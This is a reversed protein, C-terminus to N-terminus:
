PRRYVQDIWQTVTEFDIHSLSGRFFTKVMKVTSVVNGDEGKHPGNEIRNKRLSSFGAFKIAVLLEGGQIEQTSPHTMKPFCLQWGWRYPYSARDRLCPGGCSGGTESPARTWVTYPDCVM